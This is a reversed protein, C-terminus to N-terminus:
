RGRGARRSFAIMPLREAVIDIAASSELGLLPGLIRAAHPHEHRYERLVEIREDLELVRQEPVFREAAWWVALAPAAEINRWWNASTGWGSAVVAEGEGPRWRVVELM